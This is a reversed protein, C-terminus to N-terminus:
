QYIIKDSNDKRKEKATCREEGDNRSDRSRIQGYKLAVKLRCATDMNGIKEVNQIM